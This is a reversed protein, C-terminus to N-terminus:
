EGRDRTDIRAVVELNTYRAARESSDADLAVLVEVVRADTNAATDDSVIEQRQVLLGVRAVTGTLTLNLADAVFQVPQGPQVGAIQSQHVEVEAMMQSVDGLTMVGETGAAEGPRVAIDLVTGSIPAVIRSKNLDLRARELEAEAAALDRLAVVVDPQEDLVDSLYRSLRAQAREVGNRAQLAASRAEDLDAQTTIGRDFLSQTRVLDAEAEERVAEAEALTATDEALSTSISHRTQALAATKVAVNAEATAVSGDLEISNDLTALLAGTTVTDGTEILIDAIRADGAGFPPAVVVVDGRPMLRALGVVDTAVLTETIDEPLEVGQLVVFPADSGGGPQLGTVEFFTRLAPPQFYLGIIGGVAITVLLLPLVWLRRRRMQPRVQRETVAAPDIVDLPLDEQSSTPEAM